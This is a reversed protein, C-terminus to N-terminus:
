NGHNNEKLDTTQIADEVDKSSSNMQQVIKNIEEQVQASNDQPTSLALAIARLGGGIADALKNVAGNTGRLILDLNSGAPVILTLSSQERDRPPM